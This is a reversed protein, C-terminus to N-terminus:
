QAELCAVPEPVDTADSPVNLGLNYQVVHEGFKGVYKHFTTSALRRGFMDELGETQAARYLDANNLCLNEDRQSFEWATVMDKARKEAADVAGQNHYRLDAEQMQESVFEQAVPSLREELGIYAKCEQTLTQPNVPTELGSIKGEARNALGRKQEYSLHANWSEQGAVFNCVWAASEAPILHMRGHYTGDRDLIRAVRAYTEHNTGRVLKDVFNDEEGDRVGERWEESFTNVLPDIDEAVPEVEAVETVEAVKVKAIKTAPKISEMYSVVDEVANGEGCGEFDAVTLITGDVVTYNHMADFIKPGEIGNAQVLKATLNLAPGLNASWAQVDAFKALHEEQINRSRELFNGLNGNALKTTVLGSYQSLPLQGLTEIELDGDNCVFLGLPKATVMAPKFDGEEHESKIRDEKVKRDAQLIPIIRRRSPAARAIAMGTKGEEVTAGYALNIPVISKVTQVASAMSELGSNYVVATGLSLIATVGAAVLLGLGTALAYPAIARGRQTTALNNLQSYSWNGSPPIPTSDDPLSNELGEGNFLGINARTIAEEEAEELDIKRQKLEGFYLGKSPGEGLSRLHIKSPVDEPSSPKSIRPRLGYQANYLALDEDSLDGGGNLKTVKIMTTETTKTTVKQPL